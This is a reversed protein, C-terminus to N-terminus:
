RVRAPLQKIVSSLINRMRGLQPETIRALHYGRLVAAITLLVWMGCDYGNSQVPRTQLLLAEPSVPMINGHLYVQLACATWGNTKLAIPHSHLEAVKIHRQILTAIDQQYYGTDITALYFFLQYETSPCRRGM